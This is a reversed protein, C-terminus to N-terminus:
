RPPRYCGNDTWIGGSLACKVKNKAPIKEWGAEQLKEEFEKKQEATGPPNNVKTSESLWDGVASGMGGLGAGGVGGLMSAFSPFLMMWPMMFQSYATAKAVGGTQENAAKTAYYAMSLVVVDLPAIGVPMPGFRRGTLEEIISGLNFSIMDKSLASSTASIARGIGLFDEGFEASAEVGVVM